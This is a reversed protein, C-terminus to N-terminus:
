EELRGVVSLQIAYRQHATAYNPNLEMARKFEAEAGEWDWDYLMKVHALAEHGEALMSDIKLAKVAAAKALPVSDIPSLVGYASMLNYCDALGAYALAYTPDAEVAQQFYDIAK